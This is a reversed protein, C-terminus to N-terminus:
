VKIFYFLFIEKRTPTTDEVIVCGGGGVGVGGICLTYPGGISQHNRSHEGGDDYFSCNM